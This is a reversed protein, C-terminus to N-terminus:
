ASSLRSAATPLPLRCPSKRPRRRRDRRPDTQAAAPLAATGAAPKTEGSAAVTAPPKTQADARRRLFVQVQERGQRAEALSPDLKLARDFDALAQDYNGASWHAYGRGSYSLAHGENLQLAKDFDSIARMVKEVAEGTGRLM